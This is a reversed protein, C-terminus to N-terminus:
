ELTALYAALDRADRDGVNMDPMATGPKMEQPHQIWRTMWVERNPFRGAIYSRRAMHELAPGVSARDHCSSCGYRAMLQPGREPDGRYDVPLTVHKEHKWWILATGTASLFVFAGIALCVLICGKLHAEHPTTM